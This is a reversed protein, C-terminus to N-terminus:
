SDGHSVRGLSDWQQKLENKAYLWAFGFPTMEGTPLFVIQPQRSAEENENNFLKDLESPDVYTPLVVPIQDLYLQVKFASEFEYREQQSVTTAQWQKPATQEFFQYGKQDILLGLVTSRIVAENQAVRILANFESSVQDLPNAKVASLSVSAIGYVVGLIVLVLLMELLSFGTHKGM